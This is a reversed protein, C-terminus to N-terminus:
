EEGEDLSKAKETFMDRVEVYSDTVNQRSPGIIQMYKSGVKFVRPDLSLSASFTLVMEDDSGSGYSSGSILLGDEAMLPCTELTSEEDFEGDDGYQMCESQFYYGSVSDKTGNAKQKSDNGNKYNEMDESNDYTRRIIITEKKISEKKEGSESEEEEGGEESGDATQNGKENSAEGSSSSSVVMPAECGPEGKTYKAYTYGKETYETICFSPIPVYEGDENKRMYDGYDFYTRDLGKRFSELVHFGINNEAQGIAEFSLRSESLDTTLSSISVKDGNVSGDPLIVDLVGFVRSFKVKNSNLADISKMQDQITLLENVNKFTMIPSGYNSCSSGSGGATGDTRCAIETEQSSVTLSQSGIIGLMILIIGVCIGAVIICIFIILNRMKQKQLLEAKVDPVLSIEYM